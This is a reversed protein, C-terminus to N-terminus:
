EVPWPPLEDGAQDWGRRRTRAFLELRPASVLREAVDYFADPKASHRRGRPAVIVSRTSRNAVVRSARGRVGILCSEHSGRVVHGMGFAIKLGVVSGSMTKVWVLESHPRFGWARCVGLAEEQMCSLRWLLLISDLDAVESVHGIGPVVYDCIEGYSMTAYNKAAGRSKGPLKDGPRWPPDAVVLKYFETTM